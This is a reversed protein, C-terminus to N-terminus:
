VRRAARPGNRRCKGMGAREDRIGRRDSAANPSLSPGQVSNLGHLRMDEASSCVIEGMGRWVELITVPPRKENEATLAALRRFGSRPPRLPEQRAGQLEEIRFVANSASNTPV